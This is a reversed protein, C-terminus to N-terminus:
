RQQKEYITTTTLDQGRAGKGATKTTMTRGDQSLTVLSRATIRGDIKVVVEYSGDPLPHYAYTLVEDLGQVPYDRGDLRGTWELHSVGGRPYVLEYIVKLGDQWPQIEYTARRYPAPGPDYTSKGVNLVWTGFWAAPVQGEAV